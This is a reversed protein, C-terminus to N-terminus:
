GPKNRKVTAKYMQQAGCALMEGAIHLQTKFGLKEECM